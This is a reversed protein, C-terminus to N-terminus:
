KGVGRNTIKFSLVSSLWLLRCVVGIACATTAIAGIGAILDINEVITEVM